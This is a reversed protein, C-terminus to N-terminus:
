ERNFPDSSPKRGRKRLEHNLLTRCLAAVDMGFTDLVKNLVDMTLGGDGVELRSLTSQSIKLRECFQEQTVGLTERVRKLYAGFVQEFTPDPMREDNCGRKCCATEDM